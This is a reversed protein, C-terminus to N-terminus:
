NTEIKNWKIELRELQEQNTDIIEQIIEEANQEFYEELQRRVKQKLQVYCEKIMTVIFLIGIIMILEIYKQEKIMIMILIVELINWLTRFIGMKANTNKNRIKEHKQKYKEQKDIMKIKRRNKQGITQQM